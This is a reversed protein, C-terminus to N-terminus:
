FLRVSCLEKKSNVTMIEVNYKDCIMQDYVAICDINQNTIYHILAQM